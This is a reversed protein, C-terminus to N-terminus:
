TFERQGSPLQRGQLATHSSPKQTPNQKTKRNFLMSNNNEFNFVLCLSREELVSIKYLLSRKVIFTM